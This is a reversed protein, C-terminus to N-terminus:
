SVLLETDNLNTYSLVHGATWEHGGQEGVSREASHVSGPSCLDPARLIDRGTNHLLTYGSM